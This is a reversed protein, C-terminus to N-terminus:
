RRSRPRFRPFNQTSEDCDIEWRRLQNGSIEVSPRVPLRPRRRRARSFEIAWTGAGVRRVRGVASSIQLAFLQRWSSLRELLPQTFDAVIELLEGDRDVPRTGLLRRRREIWLRVINYVTIILEAAAAAALIDTSTLEPAEFAASSPASSLPFAIITAGGAAAAAAATFQLHDLRQSDRKCGIRNGGREGKRESSCCLQQQESTRENSLSEM